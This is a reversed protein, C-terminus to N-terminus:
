RAPLPAESALRAAQAPAGVETFLRRAELLERERQESDGCARALEALEVHILPEFIKTRSRRALRLARSLVPEVEAYEGCGRLIRALALNGYAEWIVHGQARGVEVGEEALSRARETEGLGLYCEGLLALRLSSGEVATRREDSIAVSRDLADIARRWEGRGREAFGVWCWAWARSYSDGIREAIELAQQAHVLM